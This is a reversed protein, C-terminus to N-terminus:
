LTSVYNNYNYLTTVYNYKLSSSAIVIYAESYICHLVLQHVPTSAKDIDDYM